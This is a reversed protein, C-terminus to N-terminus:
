RKIHSAIFSEAKKKYENWTQKTEKWEKISIMMSIYPGHSDHLNLCKHVENDFKDRCLSCVAPRRDDVHLQKIGSARFICMGDAGNIWVVGSDDRIVIQLEERNIDTISLGFEPKKNDVPQYASCGECVHKKCKDCDDLCGQCPTANDRLCWKTNARAFADTPLLTCAYKVTEKPELESKFDVRLREGTDTNILIIYEQKQNDFKDFMATVNTGLTTGMRFHDSRFPDGPKIPEMLTTKFTM